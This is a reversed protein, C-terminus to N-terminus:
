IMLIPYFQQFDLKERDALTSYRMNGTINRIEQQLKSLVDPSQSLYLTM